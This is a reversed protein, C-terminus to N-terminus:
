SRFPLRIPHAVALTRIQIKEWVYKIDGAKADLDPIETWHSQTSYRYGTEPNTIWDYDPGLEYWTSHFFLLDGDEFRRYKEALNADRSKPISLGSKSSFSFRLPERKGNQWLFSTPIQRTRRFSEASSDM